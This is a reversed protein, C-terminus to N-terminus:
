QNPQKAVVSVEVVSAGVQASRYQWEAEIEDDHAWATALLSHNTCLWNVTAARRTNSVSRVDINGDRDRVGWGAAM